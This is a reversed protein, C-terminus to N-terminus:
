SKERYCKELTKILDPIMTKEVEIHVDHNDCNIWIITVSTPYNTVTLSEVQREDLVFYGPRKQKVM